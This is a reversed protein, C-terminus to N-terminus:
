KADILKESEKEIYKFFESVDESTKAKLIALSVALAGSLYLRHAKENFVSLKMLSEFEEISKNQM